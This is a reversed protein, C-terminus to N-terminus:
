QEYEEDRDADCPQCHPTHASAASFVIAEIGSGATGHPSDGEEGELHMSNLEEGRKYTGTTRGALIRCHIGRSSSSRSSALLLSHTCCCRCSRRRRQLPSCRISVVCPTIFTLVRSM